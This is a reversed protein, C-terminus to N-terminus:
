EEMMNVINILAAIMDKAQEKNLIAHTSGGRVNLNIWVQNENWIDLFLYAGYEAGNIRTQTDVKEM